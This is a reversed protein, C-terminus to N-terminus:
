EGDKEKSVEFKAEFNEPKITLWRVEKLDIESTMIPQVINREITKAVIEVQKTPILSCSYGMM